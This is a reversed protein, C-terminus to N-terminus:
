DFNVTCINHNRFKTSIIFIGLMLALVQFSFFPSLFSSIFMNFIFGYLSIQCGLLYITNKSSYYKCLGLIFPCLFSLIYFLFGILGYDYFIHLPVNFAARYISSLSGSGNGFIFAIIENDSILNLVTNWVYLRSDEQGGYDNRNVLHYIYGSDFNNYLFSFIVITFPLILFILIINHIKISLLKTFIYVILLSIIANRSRIAVLSILLFIYFTIFVHKSSKNYYGMFILSLGILGGLATPQGMFGHIRFATWYNQELKYHGLDLKIISFFVFFAILSAFVTFYTLINIFKNFRLRSDIINFIIIFPVILLWYVLYLADKIERESQFLSNIFIYFILSFLFFTNISFM